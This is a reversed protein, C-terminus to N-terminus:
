PGAALATDNDQSSRADFWGLDHIRRGFWTAGQLTYHSYDFLAKIGEDTAVFCEKRGTDCAFDEKSLFGAGKRAALAELREALSADRVMRGSWAMRGLAHTDINGAVDRVYWDFLPLGERSGYEPAPGMITVTKGDAQAASIFNELGDLAGSEFRTSVVIEDAARYNPSRRLVGVDQPRFRDSIAFRAFQSGSFLDRNLYLANFLDKSHSNGVILYNRTELATDFWLARTEHLSPKMANDSDVREDGALRDLMSWSRDRAFGNDMESDGYIRVLKPFRQALGQGAHLAGAFAVAAITAAGFGLTMPRLRIGGTKRFPAEIFRHSLAAGAFSLLIWVIYDAADPRTALMRGYAYIPYHWLYLSYSILGVQVFVRSSLLRVVANAPDNWWILMCTGLIVPLTLLGPHWRQVLEFSVIPVLVLAMAAYPFLRDLLPNRWAGPHSRSVAALFSGALLEWARSPLLYFSMQPKLFAFGQAFVLGLIVGALFIKGVHRPAWRMLLILCLPFIIYFQEEVALSWTHLLPQFQASASGYSSLESFWYFNSVFFVSALASDGLDIFASPMLIVAGALAALTLVLFLAPLIRRARREYFRAIAIRGTEALERLLISTILFGSIVFFMDVGLFGGGFVYGHPSDGIKLHYVLVSGVAITRLGDIEPRYRIAMESGPQRRGQDFGHSRRGDQLAINDQM